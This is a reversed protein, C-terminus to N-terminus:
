QLKMKQSFIFIVYTEISSHCTFTLKDIIECLVSNESRLVKNFKWPLQISHLFLIRLAKTFNQPNEIIICSFYILFLSFISFTGVHWSWIASTRWSLNKWCPIKNKLSNRLKWAQLVGKFKSQATKLIRELLKSSVLLINKPNIIVRVHHFGGFILCTASM